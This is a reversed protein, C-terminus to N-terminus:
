NISGLYNMIDVFGFEKALDRPKRGMKDQANTDSGAEVLLKCSNITGVMVSGHLPTTGELDPQDIDCKSEVLLKM